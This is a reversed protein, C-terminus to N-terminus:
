LTRRRSTGHYKCGSGSPSGAPGYKQWELCGRVLWALIGARESALKLDLTKDDTAGEFKQTFPVLRVRRWFGTSHDRVRPQHNFMFWLKHSPWFDFEAGHKIEAHLVDGGSLKKLREEDWVGGERTESAMVFRRSQLYAIDFDRRSDGRGSEVLSFPAAYSYDGLVRHLAEFLTSKGNRGDGYCGFWCDESVDGSTTYGIARRMFTVLEDDDGLVECLFREFRPCAADPHFEAGAHKTIRDDKRGDRLTGTRLDVVGNPVGLLWPDEDWGSATQVSLQTTKQALALVGEIRFRSESQVAWKIADERVRDTTTGPPIALAELLRKRAAVQAAHEARKLLDPEWRHENWRLWRKRSQDYRVEDGYLAVFYDTNGLDTRQYAEAPPCLGPLPEAIPHAPPEVHPIRRSKWRDWLVAVTPDSLLKAADADTADKGDVAEMPTPSDLAEKMTLNEAWNALRADLDALKKKQAPLDDYWVTESDFRLPPMLMWMPPGLEGPGREYPPVSAM